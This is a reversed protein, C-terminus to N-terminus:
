LKTTLINPLDGSGVNKWRCLYTERVVCWKGKTMAKHDKPDTYPGILFINLLFCHFHFVLSNCGESVVNTFKGCNVSSRGQGRGGDSAATICSVEDPRKEILDHVVMLPCLNDVKGPGITHYVDMVAGLPVLCARHDWDFGYELLGQQDLSRGQYENVIM